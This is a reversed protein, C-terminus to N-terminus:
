ARLLLKSDTPTNYHGTQLCATLRNPCYRRVQKTLSCQATRPFSATKIPKQQLAFAILIVYESPTNTSKHIWCAIRKRWITLQTRAPELINNWMIEYVTCKRPLFATSCLVHSRVKQVVKAQFM